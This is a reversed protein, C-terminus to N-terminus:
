ARPHAQDYTKKLRDLAIHTYIQTTSLRQHGLLEKVSLLDAGADLLHTAATHRLMHPSLAEQGMRRGYESLMNQIVRGSLRRGKSNLFLAGTDSRPNASQAILSPRISLYAKLAVLAQGGLPAIRERDGKGTVRIRGENLDISRMDLGVLESLRMGASYFMELIAADRIGTPASRDPLNLLREMQQHDLFRPLHRDCRPASLFALPNNGTMGNRILYGFFSRLAAFRRAITKRSYGADHLYGLFGRVVSRNIRDPTWPGSDPDRTHLFHTFQGLDRQYADRTHLSFNREIVLHDLFREILNQMSMGADFCFM